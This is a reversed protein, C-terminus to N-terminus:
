CLCIFCQCTARKGHVKNCNGFKVRKLRLHRGTENVIAWHIHKNKSIKVVANSFLIGPENEFCPTNLLQQFAFNEGPQKKKSILCRVKVDPRQLVDVDEAIRLLNIESKEQVPNTKLPYVANGIILM